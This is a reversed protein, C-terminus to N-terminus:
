SDDKIEKDFFFRDIFDEIGKSRYHKKPRGSKAFPAWRGTTWYYAYSKDQEINHIWMMHAGARVDYPIDKKDLYEKVFSLVEKTNHRLIVEGKSNTRDYKWDYEQTMVGGNDKGKSFM